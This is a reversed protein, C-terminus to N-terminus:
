VGILCVIHCGSLIAPVRCEWVGYDGCKGLHLGGARAIPDSGSQSGQLNSEVIEAPLWHLSGHVGLSKQQIFFFNSLSKFWGLSFHELVVRQAWMTNFTVIAIGTFKSINDSDSVGAYNRSNESEIQQAAVLKKQLGVKKPANEPDAIMRQLKRIIIQNSNRDRIVSIYKGIYHCKVIQVADIPIKEPKGHEDKETLHLSEFFEQISTETEDEPLGLAM